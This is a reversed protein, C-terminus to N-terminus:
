CLVLRIIDQGNENHRGLGLRARVGVIEVTHPFDREISKPSTRGKYRTMSVDDSALTNIRIHVGIIPFLYRNVVEALGDFAAIVHDTSLDRYDRPVTNFFRLETRKRQFPQM